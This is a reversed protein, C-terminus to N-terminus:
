ADDNGSQITRTIWALFEQLRGTAFTHPTAMVDVWARDLKNVHLVAAPFLQVPSVETNVQM